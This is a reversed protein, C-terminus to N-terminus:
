PVRGGLGVFIAGLNTSFLEFPCSHSTHRFALHFFVFRAGALWPVFAKFALGISQVKYNIEDKALYTALSIISSTAVVPSM